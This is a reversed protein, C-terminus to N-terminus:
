NAPEWDPLDVGNVIPTATTMHSTSVVNKVPGPPLDRVQLIRKAKAIARRYAARAAEVTCGRQAAIEPFTYGEERLRCATAEDATCRAFVERLLVGIESQNATGFSAQLVNVLSRGERGFLPERRVRHRLLRVRSTALRDLIRWAFADIDDAEGFETEYGLIREGACELLEVFDVEDEALKRFKHRLRPALRLLSSALRDAFPHGRADVLGLIVPGHM